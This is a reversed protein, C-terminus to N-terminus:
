LCFLVMLLAWPVVWIDNVDNIELLDIEWHVLQGASFRCCRGFYWECGVLVSHNHYLLQFLKCPGYYLIHQIEICGHSPTM